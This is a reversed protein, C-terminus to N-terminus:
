GAPSAADAPRGDVFCLCSSKFDNVPPRFDVNGSRQGM